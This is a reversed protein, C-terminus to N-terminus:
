GHTTLRQNPIAMPLLAILRRLISTVLRKAQIVQGVTPDM